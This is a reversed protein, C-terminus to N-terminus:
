MAVDELSITDIPHQRGGAKIQCPCLILLVKDGCKILHCVTHAVDYEQTISRITRLSCWVIACLDFVEEDFVGSVAVIGGEEVVGGHGVVVVKHEAGEYSERWEGWDFWLDLM